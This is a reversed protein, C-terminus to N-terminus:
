PVVDTGIRDGGDSWAVSDVGGQREDDEGDRRGDTRGAGPRRQASNHLLPASANSTDSM